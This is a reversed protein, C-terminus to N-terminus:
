WKLADFAGGSSEYIRTTSNLKRVATHRMLLPLAIQYLWTKAIDFNLYSQKSSNSSCRLAKLSHRYIMYFAWTYTHFALLQCTTVCYTMLNCIKRCWLRWIKGRWRWISSFAEFGSFITCTSRLGQKRVGDHTDCTRWYHRKQLSMPGFIYWRNPVGYNGSRSWEISPWEVRYLVTHYTRCKWWIQSKKRARLREVRLTPNSDKGFTWRACSPM